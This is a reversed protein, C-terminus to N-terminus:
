FFAALKGKTATRASTRLNENNNRLLWSFEAYDIMGDQNTDAVALLEKADDFIGFKKLADQLEDITITGSGDKDLQKFAQVGIYVLPWRQLGNM